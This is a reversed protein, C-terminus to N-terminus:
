RDRRFTLRVVGSNNVRTCTGSLQQGDESLSLAYRCRDPIAEDTDLLDLSATHSNWTGSLDNSVRRSGRGAVTLRGTAAGSADIDLMLWAEYANM